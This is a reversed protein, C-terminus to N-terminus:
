VMGDMVPLGFEGTGFMKYAREPDNAAHLKDRMAAPAPILM